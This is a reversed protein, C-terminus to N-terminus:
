ACDVEASGYHRNEYVRCSVTAGAGYICLGSKAAVNSSSSSTRSASTTFDLSISSSASSTSTSDNGNKHRVHQVINNYISGPKATSTSSDRSSVETSTSSTMPSSQVLLSTSNVSASNAPYSPVASAFQGDVISYDVSHTEHATSSAKQPALRNRIRRLHFPM